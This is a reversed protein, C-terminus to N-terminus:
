YAMDVLFNRSEPEKFLKPEEFSWKSILSCGWVCLCYWTKGVGKKIKIKVSQMKIWQVFIPYLKEIRHNYVIYMWVMWTIMCTCPYHHRDWEVIKWVGERENGEVYDLTKGNKGWGVTGGGNYIMRWKDPFVNLRQNKPIPKNWKAHYEGNSTSNCIPATVRSHLISFGWFVQFPGVKQGLYGVGRNIGLPSLLLMSCYSLWM